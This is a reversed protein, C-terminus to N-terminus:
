RLRKEPIEKSPLDIEEVVKEDGTKELEIPPLVDPIVPLEKTTEKPPIAISLRHEIHVFRIRQGYKVLYTPPGKKKVIVGPIWRDM